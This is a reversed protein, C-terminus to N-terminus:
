FRAGFTPRSVVLDHIASILHRIVHRKLELSLLTEDALAKYLDPVVDDGTDNLPYQWQGHALKNRARIVPSLKGQLVRNLTSYRHFASHALVTETLPAKPIGYHKGSALEVVMEWREAQTSRALVLARESDGFGNPEYLLKALRAEAAVGVLLVFGRVFSAVEGNREHALADRGARAFHEIASGVIRLNSVHFEYLKAPSKM